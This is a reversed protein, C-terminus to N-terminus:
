VGPVDRVGMMDGEDSRQRPLRKEIFECNMQEYVANLTCFIESEPLRNWGNALSRSGLTSLASRM